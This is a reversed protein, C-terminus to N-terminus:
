HIRKIDLMDVQQLNRAHYSLDAPTVFLGDIDIDSKSKELFEEVLDLFRTVSQSLSGTDITNIADLENSYLETQDTMAQYLQEALEESKIEPLLEESPLSMELNAGETMALDILRIGEESDNLMSDNSQFNGKDFHIRYDVGCDHYVQYVLQSCVLAKDPNKLVLKQILKDLEKCAYRIIMNSINVYKQTPHIENYILLGALIALAPFDYRTETDVYVKAADLLPQPNCEPTMRMVHASNGQQYSIKSVSIGNLGMEVIEDKGYVMAAHSVDSKTIWAISKGIWDDGAKFVLIDGTKLM